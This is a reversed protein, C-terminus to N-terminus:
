CSAFQLAYRASFFGCKQIFVRMNDLIPFQKKHNIRTVAIGIVPNSVVNSTDSRVPTCIESHLVKDPVPDSFAGQNHDARGLFTALGEFQAILESFLKLLM